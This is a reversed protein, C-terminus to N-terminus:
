EVRLILQGETATYGVVLGDVFGVFGPANVGGPLGPAILLMMRSISQEGPIKCSGVVSCCGSLLVGVPCVGVGGM